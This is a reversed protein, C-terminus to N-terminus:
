GRSALSSELKVKWLRSSFRGRGSLPWRREDDFGGAAEVDGLGQVGASQGPILRLRLRQQEAQGFDQSRADREIDARIDSREREEERGDEVNGDDRELRRDLDGRNE